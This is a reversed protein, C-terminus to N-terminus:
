TAAAVPYDEEALVGKIREIGIRQEDYVVTVLRGPIDVQVSEVGALPQLARTIAHECHSCSIDPVTLLKTTMRATYGM